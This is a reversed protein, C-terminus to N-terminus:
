PKTSDKPQSVPGLLIPPADEPVRATPASAKAGSSELKM